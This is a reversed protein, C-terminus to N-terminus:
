RVLAVMARDNIFLPEIIRRDRRFVGLEPARREGTWFFAGAPSHLGPRPLARWGPHMGQEPPFAAVRPHGNMMTELYLYGTALVTENAPINNAVWAAAQRYSDPPRSAHDVIGLTTWVVCVGVLATTLPLRFRNQKLSEALCLALPAAIVAEFRLPVYVRL